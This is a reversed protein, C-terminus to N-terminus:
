LFVVEGGTDLSTVGFDQPINWGIRMHMGASAQIAVNGLDGEVFPIFSTGIGYFTDPQFRWKHIYRLNIGLENNLQNSWGMPPSSDTIEHITKQIQESKSYPGILGVQIYLSRLHTNSSKHVGVEAYTWGSYPRDDPILVTENLDKPTYIQNALSFSM